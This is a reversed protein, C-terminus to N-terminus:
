DERKAGKQEKLKCQKCLGYIYLCHYSPTFRNTQVTSLNIQLSKSRLERINGCATCILHAHTEAVHLLEYQRTSANLSHCILVKAEVLVDLTNYVTARSVHFNEKKVQEWLQHADFHRKFACIVRLIREREETRRLHKQDLYADLQQQMKIYMKAEM